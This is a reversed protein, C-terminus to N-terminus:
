WQYINAMTHERKIYNHKIRAQGKLFEPLMCFIDVLEEKVKQKHIGTTMWLYSYYNDKHKSSRRLWKTYAGNILM